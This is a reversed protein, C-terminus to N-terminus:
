IGEEALEIAKIVGKAKHRTEDAEKQPDSEIVIGAGARVTAVGDKIVTLRIAICSDLNGQNDIYCIAGGYIGRRSHELDDIIEMARIKPAGSLTGAPLTARLADLADYKEDIIGEVESSIHIVNELRLITRLNNVHVTGIKSISGIDNRGLDVLMMHEANEKPNNLLDEEVKKQDQKAPRPYTGALPNTKLVNHRLEVLKEPSAGIIQYNPEQLYFLYPSPNILRLARFIDFPKASTKKKFSRSLVVQFIDGNVIYGKAIEVMQKFTEDDIDTEFEESKVSSSKPINKNSLIKSELSQIKQMAKEYSAQLDNGPDVNEFLTITQKHHDFAITTEYFNFMINPLGNIDEHRDPIREFLRIADYLFYGVAGGSFPPVDNIEATRNKKLLERLTRLPNTEDSTSEYHLIPDIGIFSYRGIEIEHDASDLLFARSNDELLKYFISIPTHFDGPMQKWVPVRLGTAAAKNFEELSM